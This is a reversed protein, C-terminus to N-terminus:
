RRGHIDYVHVAFPEGELSFTRDWGFRAAADDFALPVGFPLVYAPVRTQVAWRIAEYRGERSWLPDEYGWRGGRNVALLHVPGADARDLLEQPSRLLASPAGPAYFEAVPYDDVAAISRGGAQAEAVLDPYPSRTRLVDGLTGWVCILQGAVVLVAVAVWKRWRCVMTAVFLVGLPFAVLLTRCAMFPKLSYAMYVWFIGAALPLLRSEPTGPHRVARTVVWGLAIAMLVAFFIGETRVTHIVYFWPHADGGSFITANLGASSYWVEELYSAVGHIWGGLIWRAARTVAEWAALPVAAAIAFAAVRHLGDRLAASERAQLAQWAERAPLVVFLWYLNYHFTFALGTWLGARAPLFPGQVAYFFAGLAFFVSAAHSFGSRSFFLHNPSVALLAAACAATRIGGALLGIRWVWILSLTGFLASVALPVVDRVGFLAMGAAVCAAYGHKAALYPYPFGNRVFEERLAASTLPDGHVVSRVAWRYAIAPGKAVQALSGEDYSALGRRELGVARLAGGLILLALLIGAAHRSVAGRRM